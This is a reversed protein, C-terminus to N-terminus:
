DGEEAADVAALADRAVAILPHDPALVAVRIALARAYLDRAEGRKGEGQRAVALNSLATAVDAHQAGLADELIMAARAQLSAAEAFRSDAIYLEALRGLTGAVAQSDPG